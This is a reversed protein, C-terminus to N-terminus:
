MNFVLVEDVPKNKINNGLEYWISEDNRDGDHLTYFKRQWLANLDDPEVGFDDVIFADDMWDTLDCGDFKAQEDPALLEYVDEPIVVVFHYEMNEPYDEYECGDEKKAAEKDVQELEKLWADIEKKNM